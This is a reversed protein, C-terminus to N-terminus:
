ATALLAQLASWLPKTTGDPRLASYGGVYGEHVKGWYYLFALEVEGRPWDVFAAQLAQRTYLAQDAESVSDEDGAYTSWGFETVWLPHAAGAAAALDRTIHARDFRWRQAHRLDLPARGESYLHVSYADVLTRFVDPDQELLLRFWDRSEATDSRMQFVDAFALVRVRPDAARIATAAARLLRVYAAPDPNPRWFSHLWPENWIELATLPRPALEQNDRWFTGGPGYREVLRRCFEAYEAPDRPPHYITAGSSAWEASYAVTGLVNVGKLSATRMLRDGVEWNWVGPSREFAGWHFDERIWAMGAERARGVYDRQEAESYWVSPSAVGLRGAYPNGPVQPAVPPLEPRPAPVTAPASSPAPPRGPEAAPRDLDLVPSHVSLALRPRQSFVLRTRRSQPLLVLTVREKGRVLHTVDLKAWGRSPAWGTVARRGGAARVRFAGSARRSYLSLRARAVAGEVRDLRFRLVARRRPSGTVVLRGASRGAANATVIRVVTQPASSSSSPM